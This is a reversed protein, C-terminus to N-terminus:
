PPGTGLLEKDTTATEIEHQAAIAHLVSDVTTLDVGEDARSVRFCQPRNRNLSAACNYDKSLIEGGTM